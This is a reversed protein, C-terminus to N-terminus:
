FDGPGFWVAKWTKQGLKTWGRGVGGIILLESGERSFEEMRPVAQSNGSLQEKCQAM